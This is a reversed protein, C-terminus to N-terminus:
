FPGRFGLNAYYGVPRPSGSVMMPSVSKTVRVTENKQAETNFNVNDM